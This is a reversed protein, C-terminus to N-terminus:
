ELDELFTLFGELQRPLRERLALAKRLVLAMREPDLDVSYAARFVHRFRRLEDLEDLSEDDIVAPRLPTLDLRMRDLLDAYLASRADLHNGFAEAINRFINEAASYLHHLCYGVFVVQRKDIEPADLEANGLEAWHKELTELDKRVRRHLTLREGDISRRVATGPWRLAARRSAARHAHYERPSLTKATRLDM